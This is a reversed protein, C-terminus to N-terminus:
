NKPGYLESILLSWQCRWIVYGMAIANYLSHVTNYLDKQM